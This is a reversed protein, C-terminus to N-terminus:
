PKLVEADRHLTGSVLALKVEALRAEYIAGLDRAEATLLANQSRLLDTMTALGGEYRARIIRHSERAQAVSERTVVVRERAADLALAAQRVELLLGQEVNRREARARRLAAEAEKVKAVSALGDFLNIRLGIGLIWNTGGAGTFSVRDSEWGADLVLSPLFAARAIKKERDAVEEGIAVRRAEPRKSVASTELTAVDSPSGQSGSRELTSTLRYQADLPAGMVRNLDGQILELNNRAGIRNERLSALQVQLALLDAETVQGGEFLAKTRALDEEASEVAQEAVELNRASVLAGYYSRVTDFLVAMEARRREESASDAALGAEDLRLWVGRDFLVQRLRFQSQFLNLPDPHNLADVAFNEESFRGQRLLTGFVYVPDNSRAFSETYDIRPLLQGRAQDRRAAGEDEAATAATLAPNGVLARSLAEELSLPELAAAAAMALLFGAGM